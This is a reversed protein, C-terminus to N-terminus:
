LGNFNRQSILVIGSAYFANPIIFFADPILEIGSLYLLTPFLTGSFGYITTTGQAKNITMALCVRVPIQMRRFPIPCKLKESSELPIRLIFVYNGKFDGTAIEAGIFNDGLERCILRTGNCLGQIPNLNRLLMIPCNKKLRLIHPPLGSASVSHLYKEYEVQQLSDNARNFSVYEKVQGPFRDLLLDNLEGVCDNKPTLIARNVLSRPDTIFTDFCPYVNDILRNLSENINTFPIVMQSPIRITDGYLYPIQGNGVRLIFDTFSPDEKARMNEHLHLRCISKWLPSSVLSAGIMAERSGQVVIPLTQRFDGGFLVIKGGFPELRDCFDRLLYEFSEISFRNEMPTEDWIILKSEIIMKALSSQKIIKGISKDNPNFPLKFRSHTTRGGPLLSAAVGSSAVALAICHRSRVYALLARYLFTKGTGRPCDLFFVGHDNCSIKETIQDYVLRQGINLKNVLSMDEPSVIPLRIPFDAICIDMSTLVMDIASVTNQLIEIDTSARNQAFDESLASYYKDWLLQPNGTIGYVLLMAFLVRLSYPMRYLSAEALCSDVYTDSELLGKRVAAERFTAYKIGGVTTLAEFSTPCRVNSLFLREFYREGEFPNVTCLRGVVVQKKRFKWKRKSQEWVFYEPFEKYLLNLCKAESNSVNMFFFETLMTKGSFPDSIVQQLTKELGFRMPQHNPLHVPLVIVPPSMESMPFAYIRWLAEPACIWRGHQYEQIENRQGAPADGVVHYALKTHGKYIYKYLYKILGIDACIEVNIHCDVEATFLSLLTGVSRNDLRVNHVMVSRGDNRRRYNPFSKQGITTSEAFEKPYYYKCRGERMCSCSKNYDGCLGHMMHKVVYSRLLHNSGDPLEACIIEDYVTPSMIKHKNALIVVWHAHSLGRKKYEITYVYTAVEGFNKKKVIEDKLEELKAKFVRSVLDPRDHAKECPLLNDTIEKWAPNCTMTLFLDLKGFCQFLAIANVYRKRMDRPGGIFSSPLVIRQGVNAPDNRGDILVSDILGQLSETRLEKQIQESLYYDLRSTELKMYMDIIYEQGLRGAHLLCCDDGDRLQAQYSTYERCSVNSRNRKNLQLVVDNPFVAVFTPIPKKHKVDPCQPLLQLKPIGPHWGPQGLSFLLPYQLPNYCSYYYNVKHSRGAETYVRIDRESGAMAEDGDKWVGAVEDATPVNCNRQDLSPNSRILKFFKTYPNDALAEILLAMIDQRLDRRELVNVDLDDATVLFFLQLLDTKKACGDVPKMFHSVKGHVKLSYIGERAWWSDPHVKIGISTFAFAHNYSRNKQLFRLIPSWVIPLLCIQGSCCCFGPPERYFHYAGCFACSEQQPLVWPDVLLNHIRNFRQPQPIVDMNQYLKIPHHDVSSSATASSVSSFSSLLSGVLATSCSSEQALNKKPTSLDNRATRQLRRKNSLETKKELSMSAYRLRAKENRSMRAADDIGLKKCMEPLVIPAHVPVSEEDTSRIVSSSSILADVSTSLTTPCELMNGYEEDQDVCMIEDCLAASRNPANLPCSVEETSPVSLGQTALFDSREATSNVSSSYKCRKGTLLLEKANVSMSAYRALDRANRTAKSVFKSDM